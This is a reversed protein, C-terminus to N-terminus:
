RIVPSNLVEHERTVGFQLLSAHRDSQESM